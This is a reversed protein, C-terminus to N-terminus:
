KSYEEVWKLRSSELKNQHVDLKPMLLWKRNHVPQRAQGHHNEIALNLYSNEYAEDYGPNCLSVPVKLTGSNLDGM